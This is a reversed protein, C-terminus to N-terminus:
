LKTLSVDIATFKTVGPVSDGRAWREKIAKDNLRRHLLDFQGTKKIHKYTAEWDRAQPVEKKTIQARAINGAAGTDGKPLNQILHERAATEREKLQDVLKQLALRQQRVTYAVDAVAGFAKPLKFPPLKVRLADELTPKKITERVTSAPASKAKSPSVIRGTKASRTITREAAAAKRARQTRAAERAM